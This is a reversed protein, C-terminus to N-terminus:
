YEIFLYMFYVLGLITQLNWNNEKDMPVCLQCIKMTFTPTAGTLATLAKTALWENEHKTPLLIKGM